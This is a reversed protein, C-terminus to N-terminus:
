KSENPNRFGPTHKQSKTPIQEEWETIECESHQTAELGNVITYQVYDNHFVSINIVMRRKKEEDTILQVSQGINFKTELTM